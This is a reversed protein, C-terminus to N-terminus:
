WQILKPVPPSRTEWEARSQELVKSQEQPGTSQQVAWQLLVSQQQFAATFLLLAVNTTHVLSELINIKKNDITDMNPTRSIDRIRFM